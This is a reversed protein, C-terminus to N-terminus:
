DSKRRRRPPTPTGDAQRVTRLILFGGVLVFAGIAYLRVFSAPSVQMPFSLEGSCDVDEYALKVEYEGVTQPEFDVEYFLRNVSNETKAFDSTIVQGNQVIFVEVESSLVTVQNVDSIGVTIHLVDNARPLSPNLWVTSQCEGVLRNALQVKGGGHALVATEGLLLVLLFGLGLCIRKM